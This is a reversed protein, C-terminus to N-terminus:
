KECKCFFVELVIDSSQYIFTLDLAALLLKQSVAYLSMFFGLNSCVIRPLCLILHNKTSDVMGEGPCRYTVFRALSYVTIQLKALSTKHRYSDPVSNIPPSPACTWGVKPCPPCLIKQGGWYKTIFFLTTTCM